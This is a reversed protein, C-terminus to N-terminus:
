GQFIHGRISNKEQFYAFSGISKLIEGMRLEMDGAFREGGAGSSRVRSAKEFKHQIKKGIPGLCYSWESSTSFVGSSRFASV